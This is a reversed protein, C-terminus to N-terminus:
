AKAQHQGTAVHDRKHTVIGLPPRALVGHKGAQAPLNNERLSEQLRPTHNTSLILHWGIVVLDIGACGLPQSVEDCGPVDGIANDILSTDFVDVGDLQTLERLAM